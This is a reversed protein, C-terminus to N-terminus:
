IEPASSSVPQGCRLQNVRTRRQGGDRGVGGCAGDAVDGPAGRVQETLPGLQGADHV